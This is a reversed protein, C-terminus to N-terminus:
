VGDPEPFSKGAKQGKFSEPYTEIAARLTIWELERVTLSNFYDENL